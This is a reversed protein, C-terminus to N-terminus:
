IMMDPRVDSLSLVGTAGTVAVCIPIGDPGKTTDTTVAITPTIQAPNGPSISGVQLFKVYVYSTSNATLQVVTRPLVTSINACLVTGASITVQLGLAGVYPAFASSVQNM